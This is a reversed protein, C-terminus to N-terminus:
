SKFKTFPLCNILRKVDFLLALEHMIGEGAENKMNYEIVFDISALINEKSDIDTFDSIGSLVEPSIKLSSNSM